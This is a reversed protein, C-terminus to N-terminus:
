GFPANSTKYWSHCSPNTRNAADVASPAKPKRRTTSRQTADQKTTKATEAPEAAVLPPEREDGALVAAVASQELALASSATAEKHM